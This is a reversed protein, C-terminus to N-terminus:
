RRKAFVQLGWRCPLLVFPAEHQDAINTGKEVLLKVECGVLSIKATVSDIFIINKDKTTHQYSLGSVLQSAPLLSMGTLCNRKVATWICGAAFCLLEHARGVRRVAAKWV